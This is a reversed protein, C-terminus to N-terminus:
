RFNTLLICFASHLPKGNQMTLVFVPHGYNSFFFMIVYVVVKLLQKSDFLTQLRFLLHSIFPLGLYCPWIVWFDCTMFNTSQSVIVAPLLGPLGNHMRIALDSIQHQGYMCDHIVLVTGHQCPVSLIHPVVLNIGRTCYWRGPVM